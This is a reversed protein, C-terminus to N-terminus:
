DNTENKIGNILDALMAEQQENMEKNHKIVFTERLTDMPDRNLIDEISKLSLHGTITQIDLLPIIKQIRCLVANKGNVQEELAKIDDNSIKELRVKLTVYDYHEDRKGGM